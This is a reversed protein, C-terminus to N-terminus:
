VEVTFSSPAAMSPIHRAHEKLVLSFPLSRLRKSRQMSLPRTHPFMHGGKRTSTDQCQTDM